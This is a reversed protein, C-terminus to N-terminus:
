RAGEKSCIFWRLRGRCSVRIEYELGNWGDIGDIGDIYGDVGGGESGM